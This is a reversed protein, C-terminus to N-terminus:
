RNPPKAVLPKHVFNFWTSVDRRPCKLFRTIFAYFSFLTHSPLSLSVPFDSIVNTCDLLESTRRITQGSLISWFVIPNHSVSWVSFTFDVFSCFHSGADDFHRAQTLLHKLLLSACTQQRLVQNPSFLLKSCSHVAALSSYDATKYLAMHYADSRTYVCLHLWM